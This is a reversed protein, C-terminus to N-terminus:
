AGEGAGPGTAATPGRPMKRDAPIDAARPLLSRLEDVWEPHDGHCAEVWRALEAPSSLAQLAELRDDGGPWAPDPVPPRLRDWCGAPCPELGCFPQHQGEPGTDCNCHGVPVLGHDCQGCTGAGAPDPVLEIRHIHPERRDLCRCLQGEAAQVVYQHVGPLVHWHTRTWGRAHDPGYCWRDGPSNVLAGRHRWVPVGCDACYGDQSGPGDVRFTGDPLRIIWDGPFAVLVRFGGPRLVVRQKRPDEDCAMGGCWAALAEAHSRGEGFKRAEFNSPIV